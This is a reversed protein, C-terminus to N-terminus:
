SGRDVGREASRDRREVAAVAARDARAFAFRKTTQFGAFAGSVRRPPQSGTRVSHTGSVM